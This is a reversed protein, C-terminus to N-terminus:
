PPPGAEARAERHLAIDEAYYDRVFARVPDSGKVAEDLGAVGKTAFVGVALDRLVAYQRVPLWQKAVSKARDLPGALRPNRYTVTPNWVSDRQVTFGHRQELADFMLDMREIPFVHRVVREGRNTVYAVQRAFVVFEDVPTEATESLHAIVNDIEAAIEATSMQSPDRKLRGRLRQSMASAFRDLPDRCITYSTVRLLAAYADPFATELLALPVHNGNVRGLGEVEVNRYFRGQLDDHERLQQRITSGACKPIHVFGFDRSENIIM